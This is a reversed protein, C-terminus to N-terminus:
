LHANIKKVFETIQKETPHFIKMYTDLTNEMRKSVIKLDEDIRIYSQNLFEKENKSIEAPAIEVEGERLWIYPYVIVEDWEEANDKKKEVSLFTECVVPYGLLYSIEGDVVMIEPFCMVNLIRTEVYGSMVWMYKKDSDTYILMSRILYALQMNDMGEFSRKFDLFRKSWMEEKTIEIDVNM